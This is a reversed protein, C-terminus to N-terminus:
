LGCSLEEWTHVSIGLREKWEEMMVQSSRCVLSGGGKAVELTRRRYKGASLSREDIVWDWTLVGVSSRRTVADVGMMGGLMSAGMLSRALLGLAVSCDM